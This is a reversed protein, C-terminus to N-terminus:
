TISVVSINSNHMDIFAHHNVSINIDTYFSPDDNNMGEIWNYVPLNGHEDKIKQLEAILEDITM